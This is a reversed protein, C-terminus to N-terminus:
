YYDFGFAPPRYFKSHRCFPLKLVRPMWRGNVCTYNGKHLTQGNTDLLCEVAYVSGSPVSIDRGRAHVNSSIAEVNTFIDYLENLNCKVRDAENGSPLLVLLLAFLM